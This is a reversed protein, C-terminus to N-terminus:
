FWNLKASCEKSTRTRDPISEQPSRAVEIKTTLQVDHVVILHGRAVKITLNPEVVAIYTQRLDTLKHFSSFAM